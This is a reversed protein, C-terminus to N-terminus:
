CKNEGEESIIFIIILFAQYYFIMINKNHSKEKFFLFTFFAIGIIQNFNYKFLISSSSIGSDKFIM